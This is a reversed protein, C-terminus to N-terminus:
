VAAPVVVETDQACRFTSAQLHEIGDTASSANSIQVSVGVADGVVLAGDVDGVVLAGVLDGVVPAGVDFAGVFVGVDFAGVRAGEAATV